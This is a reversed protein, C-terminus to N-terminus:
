FSKLFDATKLKIYFCGTQGPGSKLYDLHGM